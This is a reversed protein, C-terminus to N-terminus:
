GKAKLRQEAEDDTLFYPLAQMQLEAISPDFAKVRADCGGFRIGIFEIDSNKFADELDFVHHHKDDLFIIRKPRQSIRSLCNQFIASKKLTSCFIVGRDTGELITFSINFNNLQHHTYDSLREGRSTVGLVVIGQSQLSKILDPAAEDVLRMKLHPKIRVWLTNKEEKSFKESIYDGWQTSGLHQISEVLTNDLDFLVWCDKTVYPLIECFNQKELVVASIDSFFLLFLFLIIM